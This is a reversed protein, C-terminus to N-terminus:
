ITGWSLRKLYNDWPEIVLRATPRAIILGQWNDVTPDVIGDHLVQLGLRPWPLVVATPRGDLPGKSAQAEVLTEYYPTKTFRSLLSEYPHHRHLNQIVKVTLFVPLRSVYQELWAVCLHQQQYQDECQRRAEKVTIGSRSLALLSRVM